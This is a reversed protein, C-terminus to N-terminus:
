QEEPREVLLDPCVLHKQGDGFICPMGFSGEELKRPHTPSM